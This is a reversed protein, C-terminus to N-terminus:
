CIIVHDIVDCSGWLDQPATHDAIRAVTQSRTSTHDNFSM